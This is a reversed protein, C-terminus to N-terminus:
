AWSQSGLSLCFCCFFVKLLKEAWFVVLEVFMFNLGFKAKRGFLFL